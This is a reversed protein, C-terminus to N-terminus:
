KKKKNFRKKNKRNNKSTDNKEKLCKTIMKKHLNIEKDKLKIVKIIEYAEKCKGKKYFGWALSDIYEENDPKLELAKKVYKLGENVNLDKDIMIYGLFNYIYASNYFKSIFKLKPIIEKATEKTPNAQYSYICYKLLYPLKASKEYLKYATEAAKKYNNASEYVILKYIDGLNYKDILKLAKKYNGNDIYIRLAFMLFKQDFKSMKEYILALNNYDYTEKYIIALRNCVDFECGYLNLHTRLYALAENFKKLKILLDSLELLTEKNHNLAYLSKLYKSAKLYNKEKLYIYVMMQYFFKDKKNLKDLLEKKAKQTQNLELLSLIKYKFINKNFENDLFKDCLNIVKKYKKLYFLDEVMKEYYITKDTKEYLYKYLTVAKNIQNNNEYVLAKIIYEDENPIAKKGIQPKKVSCGAFFMLLILFIYRM